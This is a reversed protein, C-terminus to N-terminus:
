DKRNVTVNLKYKTHLERKKEYMEENLQYKIRNVKDLAHNEKSVWFGEKRFKSDNNILLSDEYLENYVKCKVKYEEGYLNHLVFARHHGDLLKYQIPNKFSGKVDLFEKVLLPKKLGKTQISNILVEWKYQPEEVMIEELTTNYKDTRSEKIFIEGLPIERLVYERKVGIFTLLRYIIDNNLLYIIARPITLLRHILKNFMKFYSKQKV